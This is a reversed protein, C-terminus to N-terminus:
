SGRLKRGVEPVFVLLDDAANEAQGRVYEDDDKLGAQVLRLTPQEPLIGHLRALHGICLLATGRVAADTSQAGAFVVGSAFGLDSEHLAVALLAREVDGSVGSLLLQEAEERRMPRPEEYVLKPTVTSRM